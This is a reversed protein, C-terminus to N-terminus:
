AGQAGDPAIDDTDDEFTTVICDLCYAAGPLANGAIPDTDLIDGCARCYTTM